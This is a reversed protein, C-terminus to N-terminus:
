VLNLNVKKMIDDKVGDMVSDVEARLKALCEPNFILSTITNTTTAQVSMAGKYYLVLIDDVIDETNQYTKDQLILSIIDDEANKRHKCAKKEDIIKGFYQRM